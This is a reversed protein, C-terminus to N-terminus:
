LRVWSGTNPTSNQMFNTDCYLVVYLEAKDQIRCVTRASQLAMPRPLSLGYGSTAWFHVTKPFGDPQSAAYMLPGQILNYHAGSIHPIIRRKLVALM